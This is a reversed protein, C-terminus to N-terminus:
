FVSTVIPRPAPLDTDQRPGPTRTDLV